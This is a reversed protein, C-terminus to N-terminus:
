SKSNIIKVKMLQLPIDLQMESEGWKIKKKPPPTGRKDIINFSTKNKSLLM